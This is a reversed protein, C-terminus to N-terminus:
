ADKGKRGAAGDKQIHAKADSEKSKRSDMDDRIEPKPKKTVGQKNQKSIQDRSSKM